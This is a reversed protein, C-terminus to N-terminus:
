LKNQLTALENFNLEVTMTPQTQTRYTEGDFTYEAHEKKLKCDHITIPKQKLMAELIIAVSKHNERLYEGIDAGWPLKYRGVPVYLHHNGRTKGSKHFYGTKELVTRIVVLENDMIEKTITRGIEELSLQEYPRGDAIDHTAGGGATVTRGTVDRADVLGWYDLECCWATPSMDPPVDEVLRPRRLVNLVHRFVAFDADIFYRGQEDKQCLPTAPSFMRGLVSNPFWDLHGASLRSRTTTHLTGGVNLVLLESSDGLPLADNDALRKM